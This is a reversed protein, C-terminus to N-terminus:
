GDRARACFARWASPTNLNLLAEPWDGEVRPAATLVQGLHLGAALAGRTAPVDILVPHGPAGRAAIVAPPPHTLLRDLVRPPAPPVDVPTVVAADASSSALALALSTAPGTSAWRPNMVVMVDPPLAARISDAHGGLVVRIPGGVCRLAAIHRAILPRGRLDLLAKPSGMRTSGGAALIVSLPRSPPM